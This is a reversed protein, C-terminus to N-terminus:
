RELQLLAQQLEAPTVPRYTLPQETRQGLTTPQLALYTQGQERKLAVITAPEQDPVNAFLCGGASQMGPLVARINRFVLQVRAPSGAENAVTFLVRPAKCQLLRDCNIWGLQTASFLYGALSDVSMSGAAATGLQRRATRADIVPVGQNSSSGTSGHDYSILQIGGSSTFGLELQTHGAVPLVPLRPAPKRREKRPAVAAIRSSRNNSDSGPRVPGRLTAPQYPLQAVARLVANHLVTDTAGLWWISTAVIKGTADLDLTVLSSALRQHKNPWSLQRLQRRVAASRPQRRLRAVMAPSYGISRQLRQRLEAEPLKCRPGRNDFQQFRLAPAPQQWDITHQATPVGTYLQMGAQPRASPMQLLLTAGPRISCPQGTASRAELHLMGGTELLEPGSKTGLNALVIDSLKYFEQVQLEVTGSAASGDALTFADAPIHLITGETCRLVTDRGAAVQFHQAPREDM